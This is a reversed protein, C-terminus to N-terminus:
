AVKVVDPPLLEDEEYQPMRHSPLERYRPMRDREHLALDDYIPPEM